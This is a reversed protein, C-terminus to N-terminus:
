LCLDGGTAGDLLGHDTTVRGCVEAYVGSSRIAEFAPNWWSPLSSDKMMMMSGGGNACNSYTTGITHIETDGKFVNTNAFASVIEGSMLAGRLESFSPYHLVQSDDLPAGTITASNRAVCHEDSAWGDIFGIKQTSGINTPNFASPNGRRVYFTAELGRRFESSFQMTLAREYTNFWGTCADYWRGMLGVGGRSRQGSQSNWCNEYIDWVLRCDKNAQECVADVLDVHFGRLTGSVDDIYELNTGDHGIAFTWIKGSDTDDASTSSDGDGADVVSKQIFGGETLSLSSLVLAIVSIVLVLIILVIMFIETSSSSSSSSFSSASKSEKTEKSEPPIVAKIDSTSLEVASSTSNGNRSLSVASLVIAIVSVVLVLLLMLVVLTSSSTSDAGFRGGGGSEGKEKPEPPIVAKQDSVSFEIDATSM